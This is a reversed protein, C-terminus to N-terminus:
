RLRRLRLDNRTTARRRFPHARASRRTRPYRSARREQFRRVRRAYWRVSVVQVVTARPCHALVTEAAKAYHSERRKQKKSPRRSVTTADIQPASHHPAHWVPASQVADYGSNVTVMKPVPCGGYEYYQGRVYVSPASTTISV